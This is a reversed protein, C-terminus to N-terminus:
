SSSGFDNSFEFAAHILNSVPSYSSNLIRFTFREPLDNTMTIPILKGYVHTVIANDLFIPLYTGSQNNDLMRHGNFINPIDLYLVKENLADASSAMEIRYSRLYMTQAPISTRIRAEKVNTDTILALFGASKTPKDM